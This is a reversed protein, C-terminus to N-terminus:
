RYAEARTRVDAHAQERKPLASTLQREAHKIATVMPHQETSLRLLANYFRPVEGFSMFRLRETSSLKSLTAKSDRWDIRTQRGVKSWAIPLYESAVVSDVLWLMASQSFVDVNFRGSAVLLEPLSRPRLQLSVHRWVRSRTTVEAAFKKVQARAAATSTPPAPEAPPEPESPSHEKIKTLRKGLAVDKRLQAMERGSPTPTAKAHSMQAMKARQEDRKAEFTSAEKDDREKKSSTLEGPLERTRQRSAFNYFYITDSEGAFLMWSEVSSWPRARDRRRREVAAIEEFVPLLPHRLSVCGSVSHEYYYTEDTPAGVRLCPVEIMVTPNTLDRRMIPPPPGDHLTTPSVRGTPSIRGTLDASTGPVGSVARTGTRLFKPSSGGASSALEAAAAEEASPPPPPRKLRRWLPPLPAAIAEVALWLLYFEPQAGYLHIGLLECMENVREPTVVQETDAEKQPASAAAADPEDDEDYPAPAPSPAAASSTPTTAPVELEPSPTLLMLAKVRQLASGEELVQPGGRGAGHSGQVFAMSGNRGMGGAGMGSPGAHEKLMGLSSGGGFSMGGGGGGKLSAKKTSAKTERMAVHSPKRAPASTRNAALVAEKEAAQKAAEEAAVDELDVMQDALKATFRSVACALARRAYLLERHHYFSGLLPDDQLKGANELEPKVAPLEVDSLEKMTVACNSLTVKAKERAELSPALKALEEQPVDIAAAVERKATTLQSPLWEFQLGHEDGGGDRDPLGESLEEAMALAGKATITALKADRTRMGLQGPLLSEAARKKNGKAEIEADRTSNRGEQADTLMESLNRRVNVKVLEPIHQSVVRFELGKGVPLRVQRFLRNLKYDGYPLESAVLHLLREPMTEESQNEEHHITLEFDCAGNDAQLQLALTTDVGETAHKPELKLRSEHQHIAQAIDKVFCRQIAGNFDSATVNNPLAGLGAPRLVISCPPARTLPVLKNLSAEQGKAYAVDNHLERSRKAAARTGKLV